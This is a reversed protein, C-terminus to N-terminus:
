FPEEGFFADDAPTSSAAAPAAAPTGTSRPTVRELVVRYSEYEQKAGQAKGLYRIGIKDGETPQKAEIERKLVSHFAHVAVEGTGDSKDITLVPYPGWDTGPAEGIEVITGVVQDGKEPRWGAAPERDLRDEISM